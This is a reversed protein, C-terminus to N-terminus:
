KTDFLRTWYVNFGMDFCEADITRTDKTVASLLTLAGDSEVIDHDVRFASAEGPRRTSNFAHELENHSPFLNETYVFAYRGADRPLAHRAAVLIHSQATDRNMVTIDAANDATTDSVKEASERLSAPIEASTDNSDAVPVTEDSSTVAPETSSDMPQQPDQVDNSTTADHATSDSSSETHAQPSELSESVM